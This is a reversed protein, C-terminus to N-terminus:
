EAVFRKLDSAEFEWEPTQLSSGFETEYWPSNTNETPNPNLLVHMEQAPMYSQAIMFIRDGSTMHEAVDVVIVAHGPSGGLIFVDGIEVSKTDSIPTLEHTLSATGAYMFVIRMYKKFNPYGNDASASASWTTRSGSVRPRQGGRWRNWDCNEGSVFNFHIADYQDNAYLYEGRVRMVADACQQLDSTGVDMDIVAHHASQNWKEDGNYLLVNPKGPKLPLHRLWEGFSGSEAPIRSYGEPVAIRKAISQNIDYDTKWSYVLNEPEPLPTAVPQPTFEATEVIPVEPETVTETKSEPTCSLFLVGILCFLVTPITGLIRTPHIM